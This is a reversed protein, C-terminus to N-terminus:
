KLIALHIRVGVVVATAVIACFLSTWSVRVDIADKDGLSPYVSTYVALAYIFFSFIWCVVPAIIWIKAAGPEEIIDKILLIAIITAYFCLGGDRVPAYWVFNKRGRIILSAAYYLPVSLLPLFTNFLLWGGLEL